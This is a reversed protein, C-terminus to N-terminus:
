ADAAAFKPLVPSLERESMDCPGTRPSASRSPGYPFELYTSSESDETADEDPTGAAAADNRYDEILRRAEEAQEERVQVIVGGVGPLVDQPADLYTILSEIGESELLGQVVMAESEQETDFVKVLRENPQPIAAMTGGSVEIYNRSFAPSLLLGPSLLIM